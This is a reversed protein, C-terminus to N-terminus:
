CGRAVFPIYERIQKKFRYAKSRTIEIGTWDKIFGRVEKPSLLELDILRIIWRTQKESLGWHYSYRVIPDVNRNFRKKM